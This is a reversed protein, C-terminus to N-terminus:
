LGAFATERAALLASELPSALYPSCLYQAQASFEPLCPLFDCLGHVSPVQSPRVVYSCAPSKIYPSDLDSICHTSNSPMSDSARSAVNCPGISAAKSACWCDHETQEAM